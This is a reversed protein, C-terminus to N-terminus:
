FASKTRRPLQVAIAELEAEVRTARGHTEDGLLQVSLGVLAVGTALFLFGGTL